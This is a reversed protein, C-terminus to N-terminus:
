VTDDDLVEVVIKIKKGVLEKPFSITKMHLQGCGKNARVWFWDYIKKKELPIGYRSGKQRCIRYENQIERIFTMKM